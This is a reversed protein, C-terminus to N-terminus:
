LRLFTFLNLAHLHFLKKLPAFLIWIAGAIFPHLGKFLHAPSLTGLETRPMAMIQIM